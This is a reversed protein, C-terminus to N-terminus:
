KMRASPWPTRKTLKMGKLPLLLPPEPQSFRPQAKFAFEEPNYPWERYNIYGRLTDGQLTVVRGQKYNSQAWSFLPLCFFLSFWL